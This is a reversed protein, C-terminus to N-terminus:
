FTSVIVQVKFWVANSRRPFIYILAEYHLEVEIQFAMSCFPTQHTRLLKQCLWTCHINAVFSLQRLRGLFLIMKYASLHCVCVYFKRVNKFFFIRMTSLSLFKIKSAFSCERLSSEKTVFINIKKVSLYKTVLKLFIQMFNWVTFNNNHKAFFLVKLILNIGISRAKIM